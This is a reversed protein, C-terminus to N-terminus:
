YRSYINVTNKNKIKIDIAKGESVIGDKLRKNTEERILKIQQSYSGKCERLFDRTFCSLGNYKYYPYKVHKSEEVREGASQVKNENSLTETIEKCSIKFEGEPRMKADNKIKEIVRKIESRTNESFDCLINDLDDCRLLERIESQTIKLMESGYDEIMESRNCINDGYTKFEMEFDKVMKDENMRKNLIDKKSVSADKVIIDSFSKNEM